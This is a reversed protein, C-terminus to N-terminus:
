PDLECCAVSVTWAGLRDDTVSEGLVTLPLAVVATVPVTVMFPGAGVPPVTIVRCLEL